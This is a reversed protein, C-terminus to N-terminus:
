NRPILHRVVMSEVCRYMEILRNTFRDWDILQNLLRLFHNEPVVQDYIYDGFFSQDRTNVYRKKAMKVESNTTTNLSDYIAAKKL